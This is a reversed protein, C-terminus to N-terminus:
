TQSVWSNRCCLWNLSVKQGVIIINLTSWHGHSVVILIIMTTMKFVIIMIMDYWDDDGGWSFGYIHEEERENKAALQHHNTTEAEWPKSKVERSARARVERAKKRKWPFDKDVLMTVNGGLRGSTTQLPLCHTGEKGEKGKKGRLDPPFPLPLCGREGEDGELRALTQEICHM